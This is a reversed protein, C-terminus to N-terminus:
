FLRGATTLTYRLHKLHFSEGVEDANIKLFLYMGSVVGAYQRTADADEILEPELLQDVNNPMWVSYGDLTGVFEPHYQSGASATQGWDENGTETNWDVILESQYDLYDETTDNINGAVMDIQMYQLQTLMDTAIQPNEPLRIPGLLVYSDLSEDAWTLTTVGIRILATRSDFAASFIYPADDRVANQDASADILEDSLHTSIEYATDWVGAQTVFRMDRATVVVTSPMISVAGLGAYQAPVDFPFPMEFQWDTAVPFVRETDSAEFTAISGFGDVTGYFFEEEYVFEVFGVHTRNLVGWDDTTPYHVFTKTYTGAPGDQSVAVSLWGSLPSNDLRVTMSERTAIDLTPFLTRFFYESAVQQWPVPLERGTTQFLGKPTMLVHVESASRTDDVLSVVAWPNLVRHARSLIRHRFPNPTNERLESKMIGVSTYVLVGDAYPLCMVPRSRASLISLSQFGAGTSTSPALGTDTADDIASWVVFTEGLIYLRGGVTCIALPTEPLHASVLQAFVGSVADYYVIGIDKNCFYIVDGCVARTWPWLTTRATHRYVPLLTRTTEDWQAICDNLFYYVNDETINKLSQAGLPSAIAENIRWQRGFGSVPGDIDVFFNQGDACYLDPFRKRDVSLQLGKFAAQERNYQAM